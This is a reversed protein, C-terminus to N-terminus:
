AKACSRSGHRLRSRCRRSAGAGADADSRDAPRRSRATAAQLVAFGPAIVELTYDGDAVPAVRFRGDRGTDVLREFASSTQRVVITAGAIVAGSSDLVVGTLQEQAFATSSIFLALVVTVVRVFIM